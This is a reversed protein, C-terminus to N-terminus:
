FPHKDDSENRYDHPGCISSPAYWFGLLEYNINKPQANYLEFTIIAM